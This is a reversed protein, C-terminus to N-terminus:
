CKRPRPFGVAFPLTHFRPNALRPFNDESQLSRIPIDHLSSAPKTSENCVDLASKKKCDRDYIEVKFVCYFSFHSTRDPYFNADMDPIGSFPKVCKNTNTFLERVSALFISDHKQTHTHTHTYNRPVTFTQARVFTHSQHQRINNHTCFLTIDCNLSPSM